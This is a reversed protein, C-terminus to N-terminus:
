VGDTFLSERYEFLFCHVRVLQIFVGHGPLTLNDPNKSGAVAERKVAKKTSGLSGATQASMKPLLVRQLKIM